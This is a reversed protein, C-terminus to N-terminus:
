LPGVDTNDYHRLMPVSKKLTCSGTMSVERNFGISILDNGNQRFVREFCYWSMGGWSGKEFGSFYLKEIFNRMSLNMTFSTTDHKAAGAAMRIPTVGRCNTFVAKAAPPHGLPDDVVLQNLVQIGAVGHQAAHGQFENYLPNHKQVESVLRCRSDAFVYKKGVLPNQGTSDLDTTGAANATVNQMKTKSIVSLQSKADAFDQIVLEPIVNGDIVRHVYVSDLYYAVSDTSPGTEISAECQSQMADGVATSFTKFSLNGINQIVSARLEEAGVNIVRKFQMELTLGLASQTVLGLEQEYLKPYIKLKALIAKAVAEGAIDFLRVYSGHHDFGAWLCHNREMTGYDDYHRKVSLASGLKKPKKAKRFKTSKKRSRGYSKSPRPAVFPGSRPMPGSRGRRGTRMGLAKRELQGFDAMGKRMDSRFRKVGVVMNRQASSLSSAGRRAAKKVDNYADYVARAKGLM